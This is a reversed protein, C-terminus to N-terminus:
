KAVSPHDPPFYATGLIGCSVPVWGDPIRRVPKKEGIRLVLSELYAIKEQDARWQEAIRKLQGPYLTVDRNDHIAQRAQQYLSEPTELIDTM